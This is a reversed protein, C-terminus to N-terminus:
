RKSCPYPMVQLIIREKSICSPHLQWPGSFDGMQKKLLELEALTKKGKAKFTLVVGKFSPKWVGVKM